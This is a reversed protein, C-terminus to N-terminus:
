QVPTANRRAQITQIRHKAYCLKCLGKSSTSVLKHCAPNACILHIPKKWGYKMPKDKSKLRM